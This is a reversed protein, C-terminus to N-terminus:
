VVNVSKTIYEQISQKNSQNFSKTTRQLGHQGGAIQVAEKYDERGWTGGGGGRSERGCSGGDM